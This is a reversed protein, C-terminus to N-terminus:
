IKTKIDNLLKEVTEPKKIYQLSLDAESQTDGDTFVNVEGYNLISKLMGTKNSRITKIKDVDM